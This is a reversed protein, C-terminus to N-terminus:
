IKMPNTKKMDVSLENVEDNGIRHRALFDASTILENSSQLISTLLKTNM